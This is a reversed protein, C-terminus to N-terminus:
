AQTVEEYGLEAVGLVEPELIFEVFEGLGKGQVVVKPGKEYVVVNVSDKKAAFIAWEKKEFAFGREELIGRLKRVQDMTLPKTYTNPVPM